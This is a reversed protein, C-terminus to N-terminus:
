SNTSPNYSPVRALTRWKLNYGRGEDKLKWIHGICMDGLFRKNLNALSRQTIFGLFDLWASYETSTEMLERDIPLLQINIDEKTDVM